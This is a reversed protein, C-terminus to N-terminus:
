QKWRWKWNKLGALDPNEFTYVVCKELDGANRILHDFCEVQWFSGSRKLVKNAQQATFSKWSHLIEPLTKTLPQVVVHVHNPMICWAFLEYRDGDFYQLANKVVIAIDDRGLWCEGYGADLYTSVRKSFIEHAYQVDVQSKQIMKEQGEILEQLKHQPLSDALRFTVTYTAGEKTWHPLRAGHRVRLDPDHTMM